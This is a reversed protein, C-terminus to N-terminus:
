GGAEADAGELVGAVGAPNELPLGHGGRLIALSGRRLLPLAREGLEVFKTDRDGALLTVRMQLEGLRSWLSSMAGVSLGRMVAALPLPDNRQQDNRALAGVEPPDAAFLPQTRWSEIFAEFPETELRKALREDSALRADREAPDEIGPNAGILVLHSVREPAALAVHLAVRGGLSYGCLVFREPSRSLVSEVCGAFTIPPKAERQEGHGPLDLALPTYRTPSLREIVGDFARHTGAFGHLFVIDEPM